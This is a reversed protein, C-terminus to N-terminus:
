RARRAEGWLSGLVRAAHAPRAVRMLRRWEGPEFATRSTGFQSLARDGALAPLPDRWARQGFGIRHWCQGSSYGHFFSRKLLPWVRDETAHTVVAGPCWGLAHGAHRARVCFDVDEGIHRYAPDFGGISDFAERTVCLNATAAWGQAVWSEQGFRWLSEYREVLNPPEGTRVFVPGARLPSPDECDLYGALWDPTALCDSDTFAILPARAAAAGRNRARSRNPIPEEVVRAGRARAVQATADRSDNDVVIVEFREPPLTQRELSELLPGLTAAADRAPVVVSVEPSPTM